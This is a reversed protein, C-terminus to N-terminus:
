KLLIASSNSCAKLESELTTSMSLSSNRLLTTSLTILLLALSISVLRDFLIFDASLDTIGTIFTRLLEDVVVATWFKTKEVKWFSILAMAVPLIEGSM